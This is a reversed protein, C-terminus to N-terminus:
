RTTKVEVVRVTSDKGPYINNIRGLSWQCSPLNDEKIIVMDGIKANKKKFHWKNRQMASNQIGNMEEKQVLRLLLQEAKKLEGLDLPGIRKSEKSQFYSTCAGKWKINHIQLLRCSWISVPVRKLIWAVRDSGTARACHM